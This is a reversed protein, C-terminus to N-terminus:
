DLKSLDIVVYEEKYLCSSDKELRRKQKEISKNIESFCDSCYGYCSVPEGCAKCLIARRRSEKYAEIKAETSGRRLHSVLADDDPSHVSISWDGFEDGGRIKFSM